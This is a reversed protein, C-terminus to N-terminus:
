FISHETFLLFWGPQLDKFSNHRVLLTQFLKQSLFRTVSLYLAMLVEDKDLLGNALKQFDNMSRMQTEETHETKYQDYILKMKVMNESMYPRNEVVAIPADDGTGEGVILDRKSNDIVNTIETEPADM